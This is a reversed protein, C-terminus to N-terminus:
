QRLSPQYVTFNNQIRQGYGITVQCYLSVGCLLMMFGINYFVLRVVNAAASATSAQHTNLDTNLAGLAVFLGTASFGVFVQMILPVAVHTKAQIAWGFGFTAMSAM